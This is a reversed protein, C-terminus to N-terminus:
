LWSVEGEKKKKSEDVIKHIMDVTIDNGGLGGIYGIVKPKNKVDYLIDRIESFLAGSGLGPSVDKELVIVSKKGELAKIIDKKPFPRFCRIKLMGVDKRSDVVERINGLISGMSVIVTEKNNKYEEVLGNGYNRGFKKSFGKHVKKIVSESDDVAKSLEKRLEYYYEPYAFPGQTMPRKPDLYIHKPKYKPLFGGLNSPIDVPEMTHSLFFGDMCVMVPLLVNEDEAIKYAHIVTDAVEQNTECYLQIWGSDRESIADQWDNWINIPASLARNVVVMVVPLRLGSTAFLVENMLALGQSATATFTRVGTASAGVAASIASFESEVEITKAKLEGDAVLKALDEVIHTEM